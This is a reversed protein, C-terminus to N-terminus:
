KTSSLSRSRILTHTHGIEGALLTIVRHSFVVMMLACGYRMVHFHTIAENQENNQRNERTNKEQEWRTKTRTRRRKKTQMGDSEKTQEDWPKQNTTKNSKANM